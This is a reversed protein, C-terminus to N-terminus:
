VFKEIVKLYDKNLGGLRFIVVRNFGSKRVFDLDMELGRPSLISEYGLVGKAIVGLGISCNEKWRIKQIRWMISKRTFKPLMSSYYMVSKESDIVFDLGFLRYLISFMSPPFQATTIRKKNKELFRKILKKNRFFSFLNKLLLKKNLMPPELDILLHNECKELERFLEVLDKRNSFPSIWYSNKVLPWFAFEIKKNIKRARKEIERFKELNEAAIFVRSPFDIMKLKELNEKTPFEEYFDIKM